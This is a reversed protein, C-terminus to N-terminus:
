VTEEHCLRHISNMFYKVHSNNGKEKHFVTYGRKLVLSALNKTFDYPVQM